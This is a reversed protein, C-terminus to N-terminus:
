EITMLFHRSKETCVMWMAGEPPPDTEWLEKMWASHEDPGNIERQAVFDTPRGDKYQHHMQILPM